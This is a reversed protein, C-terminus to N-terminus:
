NGFVFEGFTYQFGANGSIQQTYRTARLAHAIRQIEDTLLPTMSTKLRAIKVVVFGNETRTSKVAFGIDGTTERKGDHSYGNM